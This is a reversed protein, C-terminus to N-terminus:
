QSWNEHIRVYWYVTQLYKALNTASNTVHLFLVHVDVQYRDKFTTVRGRLFNILLYWDANGGTYIISFAAVSGMAHSQTVNRSTTEHSGHDLVRWSSPPITSRLSSACRLISISTLYCIIFTSCAFQHFARAPMYNIRWLKDDALGIIGVEKSGRIAIVM